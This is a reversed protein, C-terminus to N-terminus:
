RSVSWGLRELSNALKEFNTTWFVVFAPSASDNHEIRLGTSFFARHRALTQVNAKEFRHQKGFVSLTIEAPTAVITAFPITANFSDLRSGGTQSYSEIGSAHAEAEVRNAKARAWRWGFIVGGIAFVQISVVITPIWAEM